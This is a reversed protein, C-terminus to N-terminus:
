SLPECNEGGVSIGAIWECRQLDALPGFGLNGFPPQAHLDTMGAHIAVAKERQTPYTPVRLSDSIRDDQPGACAAPMRPQSGFAGKFPKENHGAAPATFEPRGRAPRARRGSSAAAVRNIRIPARSRPVPAPTNQDAPIAQSRRRDGVGKNPPAPLR